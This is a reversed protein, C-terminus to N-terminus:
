SPPPPASWRRSRPAAPTSCGAALPAGPPHAPPRTLPREPASGRLQNRQPPVSLLEYCLTRPRLELGAQPQVTARPGWRRSGQVEQGATRGLLLASSGGGGWGGVGGEQEGGQLLELTVVGAAVLEGDVLEVMHLEPAAVGGVGGAPTITRGEGAHATLCPSLSVGLAAMCRQHRATHPQGRSGAAPVAREHGARM